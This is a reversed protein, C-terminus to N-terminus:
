CCCCHTPSHQSVDGTVTVTVTITITSFPTQVFSVLWCVCSGWWCVWLVACCLLVRRATCCPCPRM